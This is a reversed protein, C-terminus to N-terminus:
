EDRHHQEIREHEPARIVRVPTDQGRGPVDLSGRVHGPDRQEQDVGVDGGDQRHPDQQLGAVEDVAVLEHDTEHGHEHTQDPNM